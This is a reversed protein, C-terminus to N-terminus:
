SGSTSSSSPRPFPPVYPPPPADPPIFFDPKMEIESYSPPPPSDRTESYRPLRYLSDESPASPFPIIFVSPSEREAERISQMRREERARQLARCSTNCCLIAVCFCILPVFIELIPFSMDLSM